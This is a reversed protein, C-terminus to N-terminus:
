NSYFAANLAGSSDISARLLAANCNIRNDIRINNISFELDSCNLIDFFITESYKLIITTDKPIILNEDTISANNKEIRYHIRTNNIAKANFFFPPNIPLKINDIEILNSKNFLQESFNNVILDDVVLFSNNLTDIQSSELSNSDIISNTQITNNLNNIFSFLIFIFILTLLTIIIKKPNFNFKVDNSIFNPTINKENEILKEQSKPKLEGFLFLEYDEITKIPDIGIEISYSKLFLRVYTKPLIDFEGKEISQLFTLNIKTKKSIEELSIKQAERYSKLQIYFPDSSSM